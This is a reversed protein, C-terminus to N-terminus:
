PTEPAVYTSSKVRWKGSNDREYVEDRYGGNQLYARGTVAGDTLSVAVGSNLLRPVGNDDAVYNDGLESGGLQQIALFAAADLGAEKEATLVVTRSAFRWGQPTKAYEDQYEATGLSATGRVGSATVELEVAPGDNGGPRANQSAAAAATCHRESEVLKVLQEHGVM